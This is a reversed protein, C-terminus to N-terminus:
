RKKPSPHQHLYLKRSIIKVTRESFQSATIINNIRFLCGRGIEMFFFVRAVNDLGMIGGGGWHEKMIINYVELTKGLRTLDWPMDPHESHIRPNNLYFRSLVGNCGSVGCGHFVKGVVRTIM